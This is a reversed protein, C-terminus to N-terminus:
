GRFQGHLIRSLDPQRVGMLTGAATQSLSREDLIDQIRSVLQAKLLHTEADPLGIDAFVNGSGVEHNPITKSMAPRREPGAPQPLPWLGMEARIEEPFAMFDRKSSGVWVLERFPREDAEM